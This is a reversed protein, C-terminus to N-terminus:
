VGMATLLMVGLLGVAAFAVFVIMLWFEESM